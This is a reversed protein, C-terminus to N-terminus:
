NAALSNATLLQQTQVIDLMPSKPQISQKAAINIWSLQDLFCRFGNL